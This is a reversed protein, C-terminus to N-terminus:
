QFIPYVENAATRGAAPAFVATIFVFYKLGLVPWQPHKFDPAALGSEYLEWSGNHPKGPVDQPTGLFPSLHEWSRRLVNRPANQSRPIAGGNRPVGVVRLSETVYSM